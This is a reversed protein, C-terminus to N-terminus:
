KINLFEELTLDNEYVEKANDVGIFRFHWPMAQHGTKSQKDEQYREIFGYKYANECLWKYEDTNKFDNSYQNNNTYFDFATGTQHESAGPIDSDVEGAENMKEETTYSRYDSAVKISLDNRQMDQLMTEFARRATKDIGPMFDKPLINEEDVFVVGKLVKISNESDLKELGYRNVYYFTDGIKIKSFSNESGYYAIYDGKDITMDTKSYDNPIQYCYQKKLSKVYDQLYDSYEDNVVEKAEDIELDEFGIQTAEQLNAVYRKNEEKRFTVDSAKASRNESQREIVFEDERKKNLGFAIAGVFLAALSAKLIIRKFKKKAQRRQKRKLERISKNSM